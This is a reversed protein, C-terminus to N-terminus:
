LLEEKLIKVITEKMKKAAKWEPVSIYCDMGCPYNEVRKVTAEIHEELATTAEVDDSLISRM